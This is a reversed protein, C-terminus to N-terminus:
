SFGNMSLVNMTTVDIFIGHESYKFVTVFVYSLSLTFFTYDFLFEAFLNLSTTLNFHSLHLICYFHNIM